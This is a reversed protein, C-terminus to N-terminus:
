NSRLLLTSAVVVWFFFLGYPLLWIATLPFAISLLMAIGIVLASWGLWSPFAQCSLSAVGSAMLFGGIAAWGTVFFGNALGSLISAGTADLDGHRFTGALGIAILALGMLAFIVTALRVLTPALDSQDESARFRAALVTAFVIFSFLGVVLVLELAYPLNSESRAYALLASSPADFAPESVSHTLPMLTILVLMSIFFLIGAVGGVRNWYQSM